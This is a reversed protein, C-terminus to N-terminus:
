HSPALLSCCVTFVVGPIVEKDRFGALSMYIIVAIYTQTVCLLLGM